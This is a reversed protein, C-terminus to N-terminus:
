LSFLLTQKETVAAAGSKASTKARQSVITEEATIGYLGANRIPALSPLAIWSRVTHNAMSSRKSPTTAGVTHTSQNMFWVALVCASAARCLTM